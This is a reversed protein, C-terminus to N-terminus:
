QRALWWASASNWASWPMRPGFTREWMSVSMTASNARGIIIPVTKGEERMVTVTQRMAQYSITLLGSLAMVDPNVERARAVFEAPAVDVGLDYVTFGRCSLLTNVIM